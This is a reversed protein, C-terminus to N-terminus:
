LHELFMIPGSLRESSFCRDPSGSLHSLPKFLMNNKCFVQTQNGAVTDSLEFWGQVGSWPCQYERKVRHIGPSMHAYGWVSVYM